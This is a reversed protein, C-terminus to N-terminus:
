TPKCAIQRGKTDICFSTGGRYFSYENETVAQCGNCVRATTGSFPYCGDFQAPITPAKGLSAYGCKGDREFRVFGQRIYDAGNDMRMVQEVLVRGKRNIYMWGHVESYATAYKKEFPLKRLLTPNVYLLKDKRYELCREHQVLGQSDEYFSCALEKESSQAVGSFLFLAFLTWTIYRIM